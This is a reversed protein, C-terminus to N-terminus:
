FPCRADWSSPANATLRRGDNQGLDLKIRLAQPWLRSGLREPWEILLAGDILAEDLALPETEAPGDLRYLDVHWIPLLVAPRDYPIVLGFSPSPVDGAYGLGRLVGRAFCTKGAGLEGSIAVVDGARLRPALMKGATETAAPDALMM